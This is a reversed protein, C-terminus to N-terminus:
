SIDVCYHRGPRCYRCPDGELADAVVRSRRVMFRAGLYLAVVAVAALTALGKGVMQGQLFTLSGFALSLFIISDVPISIANSVLMGVPISTSRRIRDYVVLDLTEAVLFSVGSALALQWSFAASLISAVIVAVLAVRRGAVEHVLDRLVLTVGVVYVAAPAYFGGPIQVVGFTDIAVVGAVISALYAVVAAFVKLSSPM